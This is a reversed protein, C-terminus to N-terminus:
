LTILQVLFNQDCWKAEVFDYGSVKRGGQWDVSTCFWDGGLRTTAHQLMGRLILKFHSGQEVYGLKCSGRDFSRM